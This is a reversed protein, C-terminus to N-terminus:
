LNSTSSHLSSVSPISHGSLLLHILRSGCSSGLPNLHSHWLPLGGTFRSHSLLHFLFNKRFSESFCHTTPGTTTTRTTTTKYNINSFTICCTWMFCFNINFRVLFIQIFIHHYTEICVGSHFFFCISINFDTTMNEPRNNLYIECSVLIFEWKELCTAFGEWIGAFVIHWAVVNLRNTQSGKNIIRGGKNFLLICM